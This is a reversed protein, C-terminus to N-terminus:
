SGFLSEPACVSGFDNSPLNMPSRFESWDIESPESENVRAFCDTDFMAIDVTFGLHEICESFLFEGAANFSDTEIILVGTMGSQLESGNIVRAHSVGTLGGIIIAAALKPTYL